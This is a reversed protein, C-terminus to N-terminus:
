PIHHLRHLPFKSDSGSGELGGGRSRHRTIRRGRKPNPGSGELNDGVRPIQRMLSDSGIGLGDVM